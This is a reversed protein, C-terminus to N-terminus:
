VYSINKTHWTGLDIYLSGCDTHWKMTDPTGFIKNSVANLYKCM